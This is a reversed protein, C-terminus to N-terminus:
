HGLFSACHYYRHKATTSENQILFSITANTHPNINNKNNQHPKNNSSSKCVASFRTAGAREENAEINNKKTTEFIFDMCVSVCM